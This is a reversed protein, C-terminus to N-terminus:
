LKEISRAEMRPGWAPPAIHSAELLRQV